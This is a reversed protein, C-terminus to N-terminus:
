SANTSTSPSPDAGQNEIPITLTLFEELDVGKKLFPGIEGAVKLAHTKVESVMSVFQESLSDIEIKIHAYKAAQEDTAKFSVVKGSVNRTLDSAELESRLQFIRDLVSMAIRHGMQLERIDMLLAHGKFKSLLGLEDYNIPEIGSNFGIVRSFKTWAPGTIGIKEAESISEMTLKEIQYCEEVLEQVKLILSSALGVDRQKEVRRQFHLTVLWTLVGGLLVAFLNTLPDIWNVSQEGFYITM